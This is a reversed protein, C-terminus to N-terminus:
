VSNGPRLVGTNERPVQRAETFSDGLVAIRFSRPPKKQPHELDRYGMSNISLYALGEKRYWGEKGPRLRVGRVPDYDDFIPNSVGAIRLGIEFLAIAIVISVLVTLTNKILAM